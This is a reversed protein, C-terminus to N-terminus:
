PSERNAGADQDGTAPRCLALGLGITTAHISVTDFVEAAYGGAPVVVVPVRRGACREFVRRDRARLEEVSLGLGGLQDHEYPDAGAVYCILEPASALTADLAQDLARLYVEGGSGDALGLDLDSRAKHHPYNNQQHISCTFVREEDAFITATGNGQHVDLDLVAARSLRAEDLMARIGIAVDNLICFGEGHGAFAHHFGGALNAAFGDAMARRCAAITGGAVLWCAEVLERSPLLELVRIEDDSLTLQRLKRVYDPTHVATVQAETAPEPTAFDATTVRGLELLLQRTLGFKQWPFIHPGIDTDYHPSYFLRPSM